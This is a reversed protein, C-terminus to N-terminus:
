RTGTTARSSWARPATIGEGVPTGDYNEGYSIVPWGYNTGPEVLNLEDGGRPGHEATWLEGSGPRAGGGALNRHGLSWITPCPATAHRRLPQRRAATGDLNVRVM